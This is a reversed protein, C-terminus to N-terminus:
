DWAAEAWTEWSRNEITHFAYGSAALISEHTAFEVISALAFARAPEITADCYALDAVSSRGAARRWRSSWGM